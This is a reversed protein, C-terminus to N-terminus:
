YSVLIKYNVVNILIFILLVLTLVGVMTVVNPHSIVGEVLLMDTM